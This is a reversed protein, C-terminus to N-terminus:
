CSRPRQLMSLGRSPASSSTPLLPTALVHLWKRSSPAKLGISPKKLLTAVEAHAANFSSEEGLNVLIYHGQLLWDAPLQM